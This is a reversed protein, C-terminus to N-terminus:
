RVTRAWRKGRVAVLEAAVPSLIRFDASDPLQVM